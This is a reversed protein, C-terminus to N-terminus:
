LESREAPQLENEAKQILQIIQPYIDKVKQESLAYLNQVINNAVETFYESVQNEQGDMGAEQALQEQQMKFAEEPLGSLQALQKSKRDAISLAADGLIRGLPLEAINWKNEIAEQVEQELKVVKDTANKLEAEKERLQRQLEKREYEKDKLEMQHQMNLIQIQSANNSELIMDKMEEIAGLGNDSKNRRATTKKLVIEKEELTTAEEHDESSHLKVTIKDPKNPLEVAENFLELFREAGTAYKCYVISDPKQKPYNLIISFSYDEELRDKDQLRRYFIDRFQKVYTNM